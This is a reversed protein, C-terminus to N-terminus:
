PMVEPETPPDVPDLVFGYRLGLHVLVRGIPNQLAVPLHTPWTTYYTTRSTGFSATERKSQTERMKDLARVCAAIAESEPDPLNYERWSRAADNADDRAKEAIARSEREVALMDELQKRTALQDAM